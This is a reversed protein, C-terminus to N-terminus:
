ACDRCWPDDGDFQTVPKTQMCGDCRRTPVVAARPRPAAPPRRTRTSGSASTRRPSAARPAREPTAQDAPRGLEGATVQALHDAVQPSDVRRLVARQRGADALVQPLDARPHRAIWRVQRRHRHQDDPLWSAHQYGGDIVGIVVEGRNSDPMVVVDGRVIEHLFSILMSAHVDVTSAGADDLAREISWRDLRELDGVVDYGLGIVGEDVFRDVARGDDGARIIWARM